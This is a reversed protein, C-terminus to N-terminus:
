EGKGHSHRGRYEWPPVRVADAWLGRRAARARNEAEQYRGRDAVRQETEFQRYHWAMGLTLMELAIDRGDLTVKGVLRGYRDRKHWEITVQRTFALSSLAAKANRGFAQGLEPADIGSLRIRQTEFRSTLIDITDGDIVGIVRGTAEAAWAPLQALLVLGLLARRSVPPTM